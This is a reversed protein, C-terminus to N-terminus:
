PNVEQLVCAQAILQTTVPKLSQPAQEFAHPGPSLVRDRVITVADTFPPVAQGARESVLFQWTFCHGTCQSDIYKSQPDHEFVQPPPVCALSTDIWCCASWPPVAHGDVSVLTQLVPAQGTLQTTVPQDSQSDQVAVQPPPVLVRRRVTLTSGAFKPTAHGAKASECGQLM